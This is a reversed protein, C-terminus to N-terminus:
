QLQYASTRSFFLYFHSVRVYLQDKSFIPILFTLGGHLQFDVYLPYNAKWMRTEEGESNLWSHIMYYKSSFFFGCILSGACNLGMNDLFWSYNYNGQSIRTETGTFHLDKVVGLLAVLQKM